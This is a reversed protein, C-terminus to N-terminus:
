RYRPDSQGSVPPPNVMGHAQFSEPGRPTQRIVPENSEKHSRRKSAQLEELQDIDMQDEVKNLKKLHFLVGKPGRSLQKAMMEVSEGTNFMKVLLDEDEESWRLFAKPYLRRAIEQFNSAKATQDASVRDDVEGLQPSLSKEAVQWHVWAIEILIDNNFKVLTDEQGVWISTTEATQEYKSAPLLHHTSVFVQGDSATVGIPEHLKVFLRKREPEPM